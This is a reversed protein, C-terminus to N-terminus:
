MDKVKANEIERWGDVYAQWYRTTGGSTFSPLRNEKAYKKKFHPSLTKMKMEMINKFRDYSNRGKAKITNRALPKKEKSDAALVQPRTAKTAM